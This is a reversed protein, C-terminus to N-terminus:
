NNMDQLITLQKTQIGWDQNLIEFKLFRKAVIYQKNGRTFKIVISICATCCLEGISDEQIIIIKKKKLFLIWLNSM